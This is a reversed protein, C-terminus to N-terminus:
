DSLIKNALIRGLELYDEAKGAVDKKVLKNNVDFIGIINMINGQLTAYAGVSTHCGGKLEKMFSREAEVCISVEACNLGRFLDGNPNDALIEVGLAGQGVAPVFDYPDFYDTVISEMNLRKIGAAALIIGHLNQKEIKEIRTQLNGRVPVIEIDPRMARLQAGRRISSTGVLAGSPLNKFSTGDRSIFVDRVDERIPMAALEFAENIDFPVDKMSHVAADAKGELLANEIDKTFLGKGGIKSLSINLIRDGETVMLYKESDIGYKDRLMEIITDAQVQALSSRRSAIKLGM